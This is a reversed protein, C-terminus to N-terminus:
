LHRPGLPRPRDGHPTTLLGPDPNADESLYDRSAISGRARDPLTARPADIADNANTASTAAVGPEGNM